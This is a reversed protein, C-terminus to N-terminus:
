GAIIHMSAAFAAAEVRNKLSLKSLISSVHHEATKPTIFLREAIQPNSLGEALCALVERERRSLVDLATPPRKRPSVPRGLQRLLGAAAEAEPADAPGYLALATEAAVAAAAPTHARHARALELQLSATLYPFRNAEISSAAEELNRIATDSEDRALAVRARGLAALVSVSQAECDGALDTLQNAADAAAEVNGCGIEADVVTLLLPASRLRDGRLQRLAQRALAAALDFQRQALSLRARPGMIEVREVDDSVLPAADDLRGQRIWLDALAARTALRLHRFSADGKALGMRLATEGERIRGVQCLVSGVATWCHALAPVRAAQLASSADEVYRLWTQARTIDGCRDCATLMGCLVVSTVSPDACEGSMIMTCAEDIHSMGEGIRGMSVLALGWDGLAKCELARDAFRHAIDLAEQANTALADADSVSAGMLALLAYGREVCPGQDDLLRRARGFWGQGVAPEELGDTHLVGLAAAATAARRPLNAGLFDRYAREFQQKAEAFDIAVYALRGLLLRDEPDERADAVAKLMAVAGRFDGAHLQRMAAARSPQADTNM